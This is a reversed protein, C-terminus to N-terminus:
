RIEDETMEDANLDVQTVRFLKREISAHNKLPTLGWEQQAKQLDCTNSKAEIEYTYYDSKGFRYSLKLEYEPMEWTYNETQM